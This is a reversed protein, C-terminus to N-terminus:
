FTTGGGSLDWLVIVVKMFDGAITAGSVGM